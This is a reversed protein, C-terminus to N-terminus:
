GMFDENVVFCKNKEKRKNYTISPLLCDEIVPTGNHIM